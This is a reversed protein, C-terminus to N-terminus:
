VPAGGSRGRRGCEEGVRREESTEPTPQPPLAVAADLPHERLPREESYALDLLRYELGDYFTDAVTFRNGPGGSMDLVLDARMAPGLVVHGDQPEHPAVPQGDLAIVQPRHGHFELRFIRATAANIVRLRVREGARVPFSERIRGNVTVTNGIRGAHSMDHRNGFDDSVSADDRLRWDGLVWVVERDVRIPEREEVILAGYLGRGVQEFSRQHPHYWYTGADPLDFAYAFTEGPGIPKQTLHPVGDMANPLRIGHWHVTTEEDLRNEVLVRLRDGQRLRIEPGPTTGLDSSCVDSSWDSIRM